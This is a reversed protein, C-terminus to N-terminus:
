LPLVYRIVRDQIQRKMVAFIRPIHLGAMIQQLMYKLLVLCQLVKIQELLIICMIQVETM